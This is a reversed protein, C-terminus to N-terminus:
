GILVSAHPHRAWSSTDHGDWECSLSRARVPTPGRRSSRAAAQQSGAAQACVESAASAAGQFGLSRQSSTVEEKEQPRLELQWCCLCPAAKLQKVTVSAFELKM